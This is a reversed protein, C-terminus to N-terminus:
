RSFFDLNSLDLINVFPKTKTYVAYLSDDKIKYERFIGIYLETTRKLLELDENVGNILAHNCNLNALFRRHLNQLLLDGLLGSHRSLFDLQDEGSAAKGVFVQQLRMKDAVVCRNLCRAIETSAHNLIIVVSTLSRYPHMIRM